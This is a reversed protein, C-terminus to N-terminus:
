PPDLQWRAEDGGQRARAINQGAVERVVPSSPWDNVDIVVLFGDKGVIVYGGYVLLKLAEALERLARLVSLGPGEARESHAGTPRFAAEGASGPGSVPVARKVPVRADTAGCLVGTRRPGRPRAAGRIAGHDRRGHGSKLIAMVAHDVGIVMGCAIVQLVAILTGPRDPRSRRRRCSPALPRVEGLGRHTSRCRPGLAGSGETATPRPQAPSGAQAMAAMEADPAPQVITSWLGSPAAPAEDSFRGRNMEAERTPAGRPRPWHHRPRPHIHRRAGHPCRSTIRHVLGEEPEQDLCLEGIASEWMVPHRLHATPGASPVYAVPATLKHRAVLHDDLSERSVGQHAKM